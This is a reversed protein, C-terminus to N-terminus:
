PTSVVQEIMCDNDPSFLTIQKSIEEIEQKARQFGCASYWTNPVPSKLYKLLSTIKKM